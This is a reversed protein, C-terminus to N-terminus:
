NAFNNCHQLTKIKAPLNNWVFSARFALSYTGYTKSLTTPLTLIQPMRLQYPSNKSQVLDWMFDSNIQNLSKYVEIMLIRLNKKHIPVSNDM